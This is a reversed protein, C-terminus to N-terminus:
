IWSIPQIKAVVAYNSFKTPAPKHRRWSPRTNKTAPPSAQKSSVSKVCPPPQMLIIWSRNYVCVNNIPASFRASSISSVGIKSKHLRTFMIFSVGSSTGSNRGNRCKRNRWMRRRSSSNCTTVVPNSNLRSARSSYNSNSCVTVM